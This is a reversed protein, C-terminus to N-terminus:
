LDYRQKETVAFLFNQSKEDLYFIFVLSCQLYYENVVWNGNKSEKSKRGQSHFKIEEPLMITIDLAADWSEGPQDCYNSLWICVNGAKRSPLQLWIIYNLGVLLFGRPTLSRPFSKNGQYISCTNSSLKSSRGTWEDEQWSHLHSTLHEPLERSLMHYCDHPFFSWM